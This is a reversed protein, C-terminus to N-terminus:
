RNTQYIYTLRYEKEKERFKWHVIIDTQKAPVPLMMHEFRKTERSYFFGPYGEVPERKLDTGRMRRLIFDNMQTRAIMMAHTNKQAGSIANVSATVGSFVSLLIISLIAVAILIEVLAFGRASCFSRRRLYPAASIETDTCGLIV